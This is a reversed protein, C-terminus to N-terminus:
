GADQGAMVRAIDTAIARLQGLLHEVTEVPVDVSLDGHIVANRLRSMERLDQVADNELYGEEALIQLAGLPSIEGLRQEMRNMYVVRALAELVAGGMILAPFNHGSKVLDQIENLNAEIQKPTQKVIFALPNGEPHTYRIEFGWGNQSAKEALELDYEQTAPDFQRRLKIVCGLGDPGLAIADLSYEEWFSPVLERPPDVYFAFGRWEYSARLDKLIDSEAIGADPHVTRLGGSEKGMGKAILPSRWAESRSPAVVGRLLDAASLDEDIEPWHIGRGAGATQWHTRQEPTAAALRPYWALPVTITRGDMLAVSLEHETLSVDRVRIDATEALRIDATEVRASSAM